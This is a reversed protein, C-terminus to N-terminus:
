QRPAFTKKDIVRFQEEKMVAPDDSMEVFRMDVGSDKVDFILIGRTQEAGAWDHGKGRFFPNHGSGRGFRYADKGSCGIVIQTCGKDPTPECREYDPDNGCLMATAKYKGLLPLVDNRTHQMWAHLSRSSRGSSYGAQSDLVFLYKEKAGALEKELWQAQPSGPQWLENGNIGIFRVPGIAKSWNHAYGDEAPTFHMESVVGAFDRGGPTMLTPINALMKGAPNFYRREWDFDWTGHESVNGTNVVLAPKLAQVRDCMM